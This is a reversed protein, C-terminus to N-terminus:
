TDSRRRLVNVTPPGPLWTVLVPAPGPLMELHFNHKKLLELKLFAPMKPDHALFLVKGFYCDLYRGPLM